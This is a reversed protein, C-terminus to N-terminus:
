YVILTFYPPTSGDNIIIIEWKEAIDRIIPLIKNFTNKLNKEENYCPLFVSLENIILDAMGQVTKAEQLLEWNQWRSERVNKFLLEPTTAFCRVTAHKGGTLKGTIRDVKALCTKAFPCSHGAPLSLIAVRKTLKANNLAFTLKNHKM